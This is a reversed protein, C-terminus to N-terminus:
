CTVVTLCSQDLPLAAAETVVKLVDGRIKQWGAVVSKSELEYATPEETVSPSYDFFDDKDESFDDADSLSPQVTSVLCSESPM